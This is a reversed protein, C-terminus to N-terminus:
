GYYRTQRFRHSVYGAFDDLFQSFRPSQCEVSCAKLFPLLGAPYGLICLRGEANACAQEERSLSDYSPPQGMDSLYILGHQAGARQEMDDLYRKVQNPQDGAFPKNEIGVIWGHHHHLSIDIRGKQVSGNVKDFSDIGEEVFVHYGSDPCSLLGYEETGAVTAVHKKVAKLFLLQFLDGQGHDGDTQLIMALVTSLMLEGKESRRDILYDFVNFSTSLVKDIHQQKKRAEDFSNKFEHLFSRM